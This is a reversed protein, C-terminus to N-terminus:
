SGKRSVWEKYAQINGQSMALPKLNKSMFCLGLQVLVRYIFYVVVIGRNQFTPEIHKLLTKMFEYDRNAYGEEDLRSLRHHKHIVMVDTINRKRFGHKLFKYGYSLDEARKASTDWLGIEDVVKRRIAGCGGGITTIEFGFAMGLIKPGILHNIESLKSWLHPRYEEPYTYTIGVADVDGRSFEEAIRSLWNSSEIISDDDCFAIIDYTAAKVGANRAAARGMGESLIYRISECNHREYGANVQFLKVVARTNDTSHDDVVIVEYTPYDQHLVVELCEGLIDARNHTRVVVSIPEM